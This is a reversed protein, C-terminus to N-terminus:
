LTWENSLASHNVFMQLLIHNMYQTHLKILVGQVDLVTGVLQNENRVIKPAFSINYM